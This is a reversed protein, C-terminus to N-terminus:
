QNGSYTVTRINTLNEHGGLAEVANTILTTASYVTTVNERPVVSGTTHHILLVVIASFSSIPQLMKFATTRQARYQFLRCQAESVERSFGSVEQM